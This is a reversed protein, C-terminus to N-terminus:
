KPPEIARRAAAASREEFMRRLEQSRERLVAAKNGDGVASYARALQAHLSGDEDAALAPELLPIAAAFEGRQLHARGLAAQVAPDRPDAAAARQLLPLAEEPRRLQLLAYGALKATRVDDPRAELLPTLTRLTRDFDRAAYCAAALEYTLVPNNPALTVAAALETVADQHRDEDRAVTARVARREASDPLRELHDFAARALESAARARWYRSEAESSALAASLATRYQGSRYACLAARTKCAAPSLV